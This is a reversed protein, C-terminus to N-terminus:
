FTAACRVQNKMRMVTYVADDAADVLHQIGRQADENGYFGVGISCSLIEFLPTLYNIKISSCFIQAARNEDQM